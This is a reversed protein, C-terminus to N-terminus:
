FHHFQFASSIATFHFQLQQAENIPNKLTIPDTYLQDYETGNFRRHKILISQVNHLTVLIM